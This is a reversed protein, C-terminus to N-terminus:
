NSSAADPFAKEAGRPIATSEDPFRQTASVPPLRSTSSSGAPLWSRVTPDVPEALPKKLWGAPVASPGVPSRNTASVFLERIWLNVGDPAKAADHPPKPAEVPDNM